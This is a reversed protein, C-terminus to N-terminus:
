DKVEANQLLELRIDDVIHMWTPGNFIIVWDGKAPFVAM